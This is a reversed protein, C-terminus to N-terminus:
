RACGTPPASSIPKPPRSSSSRCRRWRASSSIPSRSSVEFETSDPRTWAGGCSTVSARWRQRRSSCRQPRQIRQRLRASGSIGPISRPRRRRAAQTAQRQAELHQLADYIKSMPGEQAASHVADRRDNPDGRGGGRLRRAAHKRETPAGARARRSRLDHQRRGVRELEGGDTAFPAGGSAGGGVTAQLAAELATGRPSRMGAVVEPEGVEIRVPVEPAGADRLDAAALRRVIERHVARPDAEPLPRYSISLTCRDAIMNNATGGQVVGFNLPVYPCEPFDAAAPPPPAARLEAQYASICGIVRAMVAIANQGREPISSHGAIGHATITFSVIGKHTHFVRWTPRSASGRWSRSRSTPSSRRCSRSSVGRGTAGSRRTPPSSSPSRGGSRERPRARGGRRSVPRSLGEHRLDRAGLGPRRRDRAGAARADLRGPRRVAGRRYAGVRDAWRRGAPRGDRDREGQRRRRDRVRPVVVRFGHRELEDALYGAAAANSKASVTDFAVLRRAVEHLYTGM